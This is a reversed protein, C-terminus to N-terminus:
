NNVSPTGARSEINRNIKNIMEKNDSVQEELPTTFRSDLPTM